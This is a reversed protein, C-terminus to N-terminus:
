RVLLGELMSCDHLGSRAGGWCRGGSAGYGNNIARALVHMWARTCVELADVVLDLIQGNYKTVNAYRLEEAQGDKNYRGNISGGHSACM